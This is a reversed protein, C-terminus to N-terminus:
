IRVEVFSKERLRRLWDRYEQDFKRELVVDRVDFTGEFLVIHVGRASLFPATVEGSSLGAVADIFEKSIQDVPVLGLDGGRPAAPGESFRSAVQGFDEGSRLAALAEEVKPEIRQYQEGPNLKFFIQKLRYYKGEKLGLRELEHRMEESSLDLRQKVERDVVRGIVIQEYILKRYKALSFGEKEIAAEFATEDMGYKKRINDLAVTVEEEKVEIGQRKAEQLQLRQEIMHDLYAKENKKYTARKQDEDMGATAASMEFELSQYLELWTIVEDNVVAVVKDLVLQNEQKSPKEAGAM